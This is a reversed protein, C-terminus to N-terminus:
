GFPICGHITKFFDIDLGEVRRHIRYEKRFNTQGLIHEGDNQKEKGIKAILSM